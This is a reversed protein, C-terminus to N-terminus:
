DYIYVPRLYNKPNITIKKDYFIYEYFIECLKQHGLDSPHDDFESVALNNQDIFHWAAFQYGM